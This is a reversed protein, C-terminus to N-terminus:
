DLVGVGPCIIWVLKQVETVSGLGSDRVNALDLVNDIM